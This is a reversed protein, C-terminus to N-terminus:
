RILSPSTDHIGAASVVLTMTIASSTPMTASNTNREMKRQRGAASQATEAAGSHHPRPGTAGLAMAREGLIMGGTVLYPALLWAVVAGTSVM